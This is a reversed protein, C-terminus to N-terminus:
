IRERTARQRGKSHRKDARPRGRPRGKLRRASAEAQVLHNAVDAVHYRGGTLRPVGDLYRQVTRYSVGFWDKLQKTTIYECGAFTRLRGEVTRRRNSLETATM